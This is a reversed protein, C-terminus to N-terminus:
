SNRGEASGTRSRRRGSRAAATAPSRPRGSRPRGDPGPAAAPLRPTFRATATNYPGHVDSEEDLLHTLSRVLRGGEAVDEVRRLPGVRQPDIAHPEALDVELGGRGAEGRRRLPRAADRP